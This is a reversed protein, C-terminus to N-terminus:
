FELEITELPEPNVANIGLNDRIRQVLFLSSKPEGMVVFIKEPKKLEAAKEVFALLNDSDKHSSYGPISDTKARVKLTEGNIQIEKAGDQLKRGLTGVSQYGVFLIMADPKTVYHKEHTIVRGGVSMGSGAMIIKPNPMNQIALSEEARVTFKLRPFSFIDDGSAIDQRVKQNFNEPYKRYVETV